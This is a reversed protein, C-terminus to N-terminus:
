ERFEDLFDEFAKIIKKQISTTCLPKLEIIQQEIESLADAIKQKSEDTLECQPM